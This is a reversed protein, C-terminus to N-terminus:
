PAGDRTATQRRDAYAKRLLRAYAIAYAVATLLFGWQRTSIAYAVWAVQATINFWWGIRPRTAAILLGSVGIAALIFSWLPSM